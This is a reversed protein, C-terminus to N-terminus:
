AWTGPCSRGTPEKRYWLQSPCRRSSFNSSWNRWTSRSCLCPTRSPCSPDGYPPRPLGPTWSSSVLCWGRVWLVTGQRHSLAVPDPVQGQSGQSSQLSYLCLSPAAAVM